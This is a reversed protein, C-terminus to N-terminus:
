VAHNTCQKGLRKVLDYVKRESVAYRDALLSVIYTVKEGESRMSEYDSYLDIYKYDYPKLGIKSLRNILERNFNLIEYVTM